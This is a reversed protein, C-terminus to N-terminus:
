KKPLIASSSLCNQLMHQSQFEGNSSLFLCQALGPRKGARAAAYRLSMRRAERPAVPPPPVGEGSLSAEAHHQCYLYWIVAEGISPAAHAQFWRRDWPFIYDFGDHVLPEEITNLGEATTACDSPSQGM